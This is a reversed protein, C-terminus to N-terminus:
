ELLTSWQKNVQLIIQGSAQTIIYQSFSFLINNSVWTEDKKASLDLKWSHFSFLSTLGEPIRWHNIHIQTCVAFASCPRYSARLLHSTIGNKTKNNVVNNQFAFGSFHKPKRLFSFYLYNQKFLLYPISLIQSTKNGKQSREMLHCLQTNECLVNNLEPSITITKFFYKWPFYKSFLVYIPILKAFFHHKAM